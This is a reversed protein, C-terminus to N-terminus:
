RSGARATRGTTESGGDARSGNVPQSRPHALKAQRRAAMRLLQTLHPGLGDRPLDATLEVAGEGRDLVTVPGLNRLLDLMEANTELVLGSFRTIGEERARLALLELLSTGLGRGHRDDAVTVAVEAVEPGTRVYRGVGVATGTDPDLALLAEHGRHDVETLYRLMADDLTRTSTLFRRFRSEESLRDFGERLLRKDTPRIPRVLVRSGDRLALDLPKAPATM